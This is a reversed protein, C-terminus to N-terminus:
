PVKRDRWPLRCSHPITAQHFFAPIPTLHCHLLLAFPLSVKNIEAAFAQEFASLYFPAVNTDTILAYVSAPLTTLVTHAIYPILHFGCHISDRGLISVKLIDPATDM